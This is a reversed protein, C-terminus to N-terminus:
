LCFGYGVLEVTGLGICVQQVLGNCSCSVSSRKPDARLYYGRVMCRESCCYEARPASVSLNSTASSASQYPTRASDGAIGDGEDAASCAQSQGCAGAEEAALDDESFWLVAAESLASRDSENFGHEGPKGSQDTFLLLEVQALRGFRMAQQDSARYTGSRDM